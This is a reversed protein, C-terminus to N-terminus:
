RVTFSDKRKFKNLSYIFAFLKQIRCSRAREIAGYGKSDCFVVRETGKGDRTILPKERCQGNEILIIALM